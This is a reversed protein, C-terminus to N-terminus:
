EAKKLLYGVFRQSFPCFNQFHPQLFNFSCESDNLPNSQNKKSSKVDRNVMWIFGCAKM